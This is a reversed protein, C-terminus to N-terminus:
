TWRNGPGTGQLPLVSAQSKPGAEPHDHSVEKPLPLNQPGSIVLSQGSTGRALVQPQGRAANSSGWTSEPLSPPHALGMGGHSCVLLSPSEVWIMWLLQEM